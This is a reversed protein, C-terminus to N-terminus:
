EVGLRVLQLTGMVQLEVQAALEGAVGGAMFDLASRASTTHRNAAKAAAHLLSPVYMKIMNEVYQYSRTCQM